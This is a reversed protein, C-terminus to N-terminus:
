TLISTCGAMAGPMAGPMADSLWAVVYSVLSPRVYLHWRPTEDVLHFLAPAKAILSQACHGAAFSRPHLDLPCCSALVDRSAPGGLELLVRSSSIDIVAGEDRDVAPEITDIIARRSTSPGTVLWEDPRVWLCTGWPVVATRNNPPLTDLGLAEAVRPRASESVRMSVVTRPRHTILQVAGAEHEGM